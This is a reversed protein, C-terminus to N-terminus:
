QLGASAKLKLAHERLQGIKKNVTQRSWGTERAIADQALGDVFYLLAVTRTKEDFRRFFRIIVERDSFTKSCDASTLLLMTEDEIPTPQKKNRRLTDFCVREAVRYLWRVPADTNAFADGYKMLRLYVDQLADEAQAQNRLIIRCRRLVLHGYKEYAIAVQDESLV